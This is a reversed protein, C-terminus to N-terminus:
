PNHVPQGAKAGQYYPSTVPLVCLHAAKTQARRTNYDNVAENSDLDALQITNMAEDVTDGPALIVKSDPM